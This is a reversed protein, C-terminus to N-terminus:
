PAVTSQAGSEGGENKPQNEGENKPKEKDNKEKLAAAREEISTQRKALDQRHVADMADLALDFRDARIDYAPLVGDKRETYISPAGDEIGEQNSVIREIKQEITEGEISENVGLTSKAYIPKKYM